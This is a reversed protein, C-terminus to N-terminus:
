GLLKILSLVFTSIFVISLPILTVDLAHTLRKARVSSMNAVVDKLVVLAVLTVVVVLVLWTNSGMATTTVTTTTVTTSM